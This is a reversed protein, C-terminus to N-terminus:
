LQSRLPTQSLSLFLSRELLNNAEAAFEPNSTIELQNLVQAVYKPIAFAVFLLPLSFHRLERTPNRTMHSCAAGM